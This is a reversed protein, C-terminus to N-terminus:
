SVDSYFNLFWQIGYRELVRKGEKTVDEYRKEIENSVAVWEKPITLSLTM